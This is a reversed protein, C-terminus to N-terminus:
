GVEGYMAQCQFGRARGGTSCTIRLSSCSSCLCTSSISALWGVEGAKQPRDCSCVELGQEPVATSLLDTDTRAKHTNKGATQMCLVCGYMPRPAWQM